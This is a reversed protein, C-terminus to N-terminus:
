ITSAPASISPASSLGDFLRRRAWRGSLCEPESFDTMMGEAVEPSAPLAWQREKMSPRRSSPKTAPISGPTRKARRGREPDDQTKPDPNFTKGKEIGISKLMDIMAKDRTSGRSASCSATSRSSSACTTPFPATSCSTSRMSSHRRRRIRPRRCRISRSRAQRLRRGQRRRRRQRERPQLAALRLGSLDAVAARYLRRAAQGQLRAAPDPYKGGKGKDVGAPGVDELATQWADDISGTISGDDGAPPIELVM